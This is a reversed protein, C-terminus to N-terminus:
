GSAQRDNRGQNGPLGSGERIQLADRAQGIAIEMNLTPAEGRCAVDLDDLPQPPATGPSTKADRFVPKRCQLKVNPLQLCDQGGLM